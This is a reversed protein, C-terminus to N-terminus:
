FIADVDGEGTGVYVRDPNAPNIAIAGCCLSTTATNTPNQDFGDMTSTWRRGADDSRWVGGNAAAAYVRMGGPAIASGTGRGRIPGRKGTQAHKSGGPGIPTWNDGGPLAPVGPLVPGAPQPGRAAQEARAPHRGVRRKHFEGLRDQWFSQPVRALVSEGEGPQYASTFPQKLAGKKGRARAGAKGTAAKRGKAAAGEVE